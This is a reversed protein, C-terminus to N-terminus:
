LQDSQIMSFEDIIIVQVNKFIDRMYERNKDSLFKYNHGFNLKFVSHLTTGGINAAAKGTPAAKIFYSYDTDDGPTQLTKCIWRSMIKIITSKGTGAGGHIVLYPIRLNASQKSNQCKVLHKCYEIMRNLAVQQESVLQRTDSLLQEMDIVEPARYMKEPM